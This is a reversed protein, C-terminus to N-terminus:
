KGADCPCDGAPVQSAAAGAGIMMPAVCESAGRQRLMQFLQKQQESTLEKKEVLLREIVLEQMKRQGALIEDQRARIAERDPQASAILDIMAQRKQGVEQCVAVANKRFELLGPEIQKWQSETVGLERHLPCWIEGRGENHLVSGSQRPRSALAKGAWAGIFALNLAVSLVILLVCIKKGMM